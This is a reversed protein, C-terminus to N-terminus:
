KFDEFTRRDALRCAAVYFIIALALYGVRNVIWWIMDVDFFNKDFVIGSIAIDFVVKPTFVKYLKLRDHIAFLPMALVTMDLFAVIYTNRALVRMFANAAVFFTLSVAASVTLLIREHTFTAQLHYNYAYAVVCFGVLSFVYAPLIQATMIRSPRFGYCKCLEMEAPNSITFCNVFGFIAALLIELDGVIVFASENKQYMLFFCIILPAFLISFWRRKAHFILLNM